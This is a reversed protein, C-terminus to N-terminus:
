VVAKRRTKTRASRQQSTEQRRIRAFLKHLDHGCEAFLSARAKRVEAVVPDEIRDTRKM